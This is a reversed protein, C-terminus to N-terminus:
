REERQAASFAAEAKARSHGGAAAEDGGQGVKQM